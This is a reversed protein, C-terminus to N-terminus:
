DEILRPIQGYGLFVLKGLSGRECIVILVPSWEGEWSPGRNKSEM